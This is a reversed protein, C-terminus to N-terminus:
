CSASSFFGSWAPCSRRRTSFRSSTGSSSGFARWPDLGGPAFDEPPKIFHSAAYFLNAAFFAPARGADELLGKFLAGRFFLEEFFGVLLATFLAKGSARLLAPLPDNVQPDLSGSLWMVVGLAAMSAVALLFGFLINGRGRAGLGADRLFDLRLLSPATLILVSGIAIFVGAFIQEFRVGHRGRAAFVSTWLAFVWPSLFAAAALAILVFLLLKKYNKM